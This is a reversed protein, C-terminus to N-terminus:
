EIVEAANQLLKGFCRGVSRKIEGHIYPDLWRGKANSSEDDQRFDYESPHYYLKRAYPTNYGFGTVM